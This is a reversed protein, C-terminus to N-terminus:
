GKGSAELMERVKQLLIDPAFPKQLFAGSMDFVGDRIVADDTYGSMYLIKLRPRLKLVHESLERGNMQPMVLDTVMLHIHDACSKCIKLADRASLAELVKYGNHELVRRLLSRVRVEDEVLLITESGQFRAPALDISKSKAPEAVRPLYIRFVTGHGLESEVQIEGGSQKVIGYVTSLGLGTGKGVDKTTFFPEFLHAKVEPSMGRGTDSITLLVYAGPRVDPPREASTQDLEINATELRLKGGGPMADRANVALNIIVQEIQGPDVKVKGLAPDLSTMLEIDEGIMRGLMKSVDTIVRNMDLVKFQLVQKRSYALLQRTLAAAREAAKQIENVEQRHPSVEDLDRLLLDSFGLIALLLNNFDHAIGGALRGVAEMKFAQRFQEELQKHRTIDFIYGTFEILEGSSGFTGAANQVVFVSKHDLRRLEMEHYVLKKENRLLNVFSDYAEASPHLSALNAQLAEQVSSFGFISAFAPNCTFIQGAANATYDGTLDEEFFRRYREESERLAQEARKRETIDSNILTVAITTGEHKIPGMRSAYWAPQQHSGVGLIEDDATEGTAFVRELSARLTNRSDAPLHGYISSGIVQEVNFGPLVRNIFLIIGERNVTMIIDPANESLSRWKEESQQLAEQARRRETLEQQLELSRSELESNVRHVAEDRASIAALMQNFADTLRGIEDHAQKTVRVGYNKQDTVAQAAQALGLIPASILRQLATSLFLYVALLALIVTSLIVAYQPLRAATPQLDYCLFVTGVLDGQYIISRFLSLETAEFRHGNAEPKPFQFRGLDLRIYRAFVNGEKDYICAALIERKAKLASLVEDALKSQDFDLASEASVGIMEAHASLERVARHRFTVMEFAIVAVTSVVLAFFSALMIVLTLKRRIPLDRLPRM